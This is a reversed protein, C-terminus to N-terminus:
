LSFEEARSAVPYIEVDSASIQRDEFVDLIARVVLLSDPRVEFEVSPLDYFMDRYPRKEGETLVEKRWNVTFRTKPESTLPNLVSVVSYDERVKPVVRVADGVGYENSGSFFKSRAKWVRSWVVHDGELAQLYLDGTLQLRCQYVGADTEELVGNSSNM